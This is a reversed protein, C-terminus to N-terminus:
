EGGLAKKLDEETKGPNNLLYNAQLEFQGYPDKALYEKILANAKEYDKLDFYNIYGKMFIASNAYSGTPYFRNVWDYLKICRPYLKVWRGIEAAKLLHEPGLPLKPDIMVSVEVMEIYLQIREPDVENDSKPVSQLVLQLSSDVSLTPDTIKAKFTESGAHTPFRNLFSKYFVQNLEPKGFAEILSTAELLHDAFEPSDPYRTFYSEYWSLAPNLKQRQEALRAGELMYTPAAPDAYGRVDIFTNYASTFAKSTSDSPALKYAALAMDVSKQEKSVQKGCAIALCTIAIFLIARM